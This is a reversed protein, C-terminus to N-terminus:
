KTDLIKELPLEDKLAAKKMAAAQEHGLYNEILYHVWYIVPTMLIAVLFKYIYNGICISMVFAFTWPKGQVPFLHPYIYFAIFLVVFSDIFQSVLTSGTARLWVMKEGTFKKIRHFIVVDVIQGILFAVLSGLIIGIGQGFIQQYAAQMDPVGQEAKSGYWWAAPVLEIALYYMIFAYALLGATLLSLFRVGREGYYENIVDTMIFVVPWLLVGATLNFSFENGFLPLKFPTIGITDELSFIKVGIVEAIFANAIFFGALFLFLRTPKHHIIGKIM